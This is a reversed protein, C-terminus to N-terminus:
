HKAGRSVHTAIAMWKGDRKVFVDTFRYQGSSDAGKYTSKETELGFAVATDGHVHVVLDDLKFSDFHQAGSKLDADGQAKPVLNGDPDVLMYDDAILGDIWGVDAKVLANGWDQEIKTITQEVTGAMMDMDKDAASLPNSVLATVVVALAAPLVIRKM